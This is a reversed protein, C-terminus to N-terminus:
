IGNGPSRLISERMKKLKELHSSVKGQDGKSHDSSYEEISEIM